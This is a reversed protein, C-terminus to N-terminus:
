TSLAISLHSAKMSRLLIRKGPGFYIRSSRHRAASMGFLACRLKQVDIRLIVAIADSRPM